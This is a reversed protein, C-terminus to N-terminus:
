ILWILLGNGKDSMKRVYDRLLGFYFAVDGCLAKTCQEDPGSGMPMSYVRLRRMEKLDIRAQLHEVEQEDLFRRFDRTATETHLRASGYGLDEGVEEGTLLLDGPASAPGIHGTFLYHLMYWSKDLTMAPELAGLSTVQNRAEARAKKLDADFKDFQKRQEPSMGKMAEDFRTTHQDDEALVVLSRVLSPTTRLAAMQTSTVGMIWRIISM